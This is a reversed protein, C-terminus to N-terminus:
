KSETKHQELTTALSRVGDSGSRRQKLRTPQQKKNLSPMSYPRIRRFLLTANAPHLFFSVSILRPTLCGTFLGLRSSGLLASSVLMVSLVWSLTLLGRPGIWLPHGCLRGCPGLNRSNQKHEQRGSRSGPNAQLM